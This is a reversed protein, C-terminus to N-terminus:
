LLSYVLQYVLKPVCHNSSFNETAQQACLASFRHCFIYRSQREPGWPPPMIVGRLGVVTDTKQQAWEKEAATGWLSGSIKPHRRNM